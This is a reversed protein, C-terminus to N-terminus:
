DSRDEEGSAEVDSGRRISRSGFKAQLDDILTDVRDRRTQTRDNFLPLDVEDTGVLNSGSVGLLRLARGRRDLRHELLERATDRIVQSSATPEPLTVARTVTTFNAYRAKL